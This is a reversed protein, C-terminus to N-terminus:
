RCSDKLRQRYDSGSCQANTAGFGHGCVVLGHHPQIDNEHLFHQCPHKRADKCAIGRWLTSLHVGRTSIDLSHLWSFIHIFTPKSNKCSGLRSLSGIELTLPSRFPPLDRRCPDRGVAKPLYTAPSNQFFNTHSILGSNGSRHPIEFPIFPYCAFPLCRRVTFYRLPVM